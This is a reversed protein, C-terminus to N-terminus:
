EFEEGDPDDHIATVVGSQLGQISPVLSASPRAQVNDYKEILSVVRSDNPSTTTAVIVEDIKTAKLVREVVHILIEKGSVKLLIKNPLRTSGVRAQIICSIKM